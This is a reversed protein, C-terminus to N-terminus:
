LACGLCHLLPVLLLIWNHSIFM